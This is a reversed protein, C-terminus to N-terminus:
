DTYFFGFPVVLGIRQDGFDTCFNFKESFLEIVNGTGFLGVLDVETFDCCGERVLLDVPEEM